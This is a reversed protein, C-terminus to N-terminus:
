QTWKRISIWPFPMFGSIGWSHTLYYCYQEEVRIAKANFLGRFNLWVLSNELNTNYNNNLRKIILVKEKKKNM